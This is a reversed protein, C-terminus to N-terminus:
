RVNKYAQNKASFNTGKEVVTFMKHSLTRQHPQKTEGCKNLFWRFKLVVGFVSLLFCVLCVCKARKTVM